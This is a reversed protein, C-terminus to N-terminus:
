GFQYRLYCWNKTTTATGGDMEGVDDDDDGGGAAVVVVVLGCAGESVNRGAMSEIMSGNSPTGDRTSPWPHSQSLVHVPLHYGEDDNVVVDVM